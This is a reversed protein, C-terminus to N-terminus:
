LLLMSTLATNGDAYLHAGVAIAVLGLALAVAGMVVKMRHKGRDAATDIWPVSGLLRIDTFSRLDDVSHFSSDMFEFLAVVGGALGLALVVSLM